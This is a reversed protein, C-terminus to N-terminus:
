AVSARAEPAAPKAIPQSKRQPARNERLKLFPQEILYYSATACLLALAINLPFAAWVASSGRNLFLQQWLYLSYTIGGFWAVPKYNLIAYSRAILHRLSLAIGFHLTSLGAVHYVRSNWLQVLPLLVTVIPILLFLRSRFIRDYHALRPELMSLACGMALADMYLPFQRGLSAPGWVFWFLVHLPPGALVTAVVIWTRNRFFLLLVLPWLLYFQEEVGLSWLHGLVWHGHYFNGTYTLVAVINPWALAQWHLAITVAMFVYAAPFIRYARRVYFNKLSITGTRERERLLQSTILYGSLVLFIRSGLNGYLELVHSHFFNRTGSLHALLVFSICVARLGFLSPIRM